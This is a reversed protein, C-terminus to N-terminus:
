RGYIFKMTNADASSCETTATGPDIRTIGGSANGTVPAYSTGGNIQLSAFAAVSTSLKVCADKPIQTETISFQNGGSEAAVTISGNWKNALNAGQIVDSSVSVGAIVVSNSLGTFSQSGLYLSQVGSQIQSIHSLTDNTKNVGFSLWLLGVIAAVALLKVVNAVLTGFIESM